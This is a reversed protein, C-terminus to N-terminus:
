NVDSLIPVMEHFMFTQYPLIRLGDSGAKMLIFVGFYLLGAGIVGATFVRRVKRNEIGALLAPLFFIHTITLYYGIRSIIPLFSCCVYMVLAGLNCYFYFRNRRNEKVTKKYCMLALILVALCRAINVVSTGGELYETDEYTPYLFVVVKLYFDQMFFFTTCFLAMVALQWKKWPLSALFYLPLVVMISKHLTAGLLVLLVFKIWEKKLVYPIAMVAMALALYYRVTNFSQFYYGFAMFLFFSFGFCDAQRYIAALFLLITFFAFFAFVLLYNEFGSIGYLLKVVQNFGAETPVFADCNVLHMFEVYKAYDNGVNLRCACVGFLLAFVSGLCLWNLMQQRSVINVQRQFRNDVMLGLLVTVAAVFIYLIM